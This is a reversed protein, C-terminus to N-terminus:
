EGLPRPVGVSGSPQVYPSSSPLSSSDCFLGLISQIGGPLTHIDSLKIEEM